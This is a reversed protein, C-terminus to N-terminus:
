REGRIPLLPVGTGTRARRRPAPNPKIERAEAERSERGESCTLAREAKVPDFRLRAKSGSGLRRGGLQESHEYVFDVGVGLIEGLEKATVLRRGVERERLRELVIDAIRAALIELDDDTLLRGTLARGRARADNIDLV